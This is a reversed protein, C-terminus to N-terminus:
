LINISVLLGQELLPKFDSQKVEPTAPTQDAPKTEVTPAPAAPAPTGDPKTPEDTM